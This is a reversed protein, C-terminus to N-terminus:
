RRAASRVTCRFAPSLAGQSPQMLELVFVLVNLVVLTITVPAIGGRGEGEDGVPIM